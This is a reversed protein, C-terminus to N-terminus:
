HADQQRPARIVKDMAGVRGEVAALRKDWDQWSAEWAEGSFEQRADAWSEKLAKLQQRAAGSEGWNLYAEILSLRNEPYKPALEVARWLHQRAKSRSGISGISPAQWYLLGLNRDPGAYDFHEDLKRAESFEKEMQRVLRLAGLLKTRALQGQNMALYYHAPASGPTRAISERAAKMGQDALDARQAKSTAFEALDFCARAFHWAVVTKNTGTEFRAKAERYEKEARLAFDSRAAGEGALVRAGTALLLLGVGCTALAGFRARGCCVARSRQGGQRPPRLAGARPEIGRSNPTAFM